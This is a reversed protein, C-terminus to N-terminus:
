ARVNIALKMGAKCHGPVGCIVYHTGPKSFKVFDTGSKFRAIPRNANCSYFNTKSVVVVDHLNRNYKFVLNDVTRVRTKSAWTNYNVGLAWGRSGGVVINSAAASQAVLLVCLVLILGKSVASGSGQNSRGVLGM